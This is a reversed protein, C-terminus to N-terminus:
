SRWPDEPLPPQQAQIAELDDAFAPGATSVEALRELLQALTGDTKGQAPVLEAVEEGGRVIVFREGRYQVRSLLDSFSRAALTATVRAPM